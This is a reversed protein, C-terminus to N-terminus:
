WFGPPYCSCFVSDGGSTTRHASPVVCFGVCYEFHSITRLRPAHKKVVCSYVCSSPRGEVGSTVVVLFPQGVRAAAVAFPRINYSSFCLRYFCAITLQAGGHARVGVCHQCPGAALLRIDPSAGVVFAFGASAQRSRRPRCGVMGTCCSPAHHVGATSSTPCIGFAGSVTAPRCIPPRVEVVSDWGPGAGRETPADTPFSSSDGSAAFGLAAM